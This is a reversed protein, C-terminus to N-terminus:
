EEDDDKCNSMLRPREARLCLLRTAEGETAAIAEEGEVVGEEVTGRESSEGDTRSPPIIRILFYNM